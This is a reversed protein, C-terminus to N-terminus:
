YYYTSYKFLNEKARVYKRIKFNVPYQKSKLKEHLAKNRSNISYPKNKYIFHVQFYSSYEIVEIVRVTKDYFNSIISKEGNWNSLHIDTEEEIKQLLHKSDCYKLWGFYSTIRKRFEEETIKGSIFKNVLKFLRQKINKRLKTHTHFFVYGAFDIGRDEIKFIQYNPKIKIQLECSFYTKILILIKELSERSDSLIVIDDAYRFYHKIGVHELLWHDFYTLYLNAFFQSLYNGIPVGEASDVIEDLIVLLKEDKIKRRLLRKMTRHNISPYFKRVDIKLCYITGEADTILAKKVDQALKHIGREKICSYTHGIFSATWIPEMVNMIAWQAIRDPYYPLRFIIREKPEYIKYKSYESTTYSLTELTELLKENDEKAHQDHKIIGWNHKGKRANKDAEEINQLTCIRDHLGNLRKM